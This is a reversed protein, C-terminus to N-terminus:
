RTILYDFFGLRGADINIFISHPFTPIELPLCKMIQQGEKVPFMKDSVNSKSTFENRKITGKISMFNPTQTVDVSFSFSLKGGRILTPPSVFYWRHNFDDVQAYNADLISADYDVVFEPSLLNTSTVPNMELTKILTKSKNVKRNDDLTRFLEVQM